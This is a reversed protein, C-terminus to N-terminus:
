RASCIIFLPLSIGYVIRTQSEKSCTNCTFDGCTESMEVKTEDVVIEGKELDFSEQTPKHPEHKLHSTHNYFSETGCADSRRDLSDDGVETKINHTPIDLDLDTSQRAHAAATDPVMEEKRKALLNTVRANIPQHMVRQHM